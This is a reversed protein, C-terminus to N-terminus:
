PARAAGADCDHSVARPHDPETEVSIANAREPPHITLNCDPGDKELRINKLGM